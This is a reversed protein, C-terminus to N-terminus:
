TKGAGLTHKFLVAPLIWSKKERKMEVTNPKLDAKNYLM